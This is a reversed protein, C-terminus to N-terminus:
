SKTSKSATSRASSSNQMLSATKSTSQRLRRLSIPSPCARVTDPDTPARPEDNRPRVGPARAPNRPSPPKRASEPCSAPLRSRTRTVRGRQAPRQSDASRPTSSPTAARRDPGGRPDPRPPGSRGDVAPVLGNGAPLRLAAVADWHAIDGAPRGAEAEWGDPHPPRSPRRPRADIM